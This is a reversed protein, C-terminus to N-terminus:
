GGRKQRVAFLAAQTRGAAPPRRTGLPDRAGACGPRRGQLAARRRRLAAGPEGPRTRHRSTLVLVRAASDRAKLAALVAIGDVGPLKLDLLIVDPTQEAALALATDGDGAVQHRGGVL